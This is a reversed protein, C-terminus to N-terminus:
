RPHLIRASLSLDCPLECPDAARGPTTRKRNLEEYFATVNAKTGPNRGSLGAFYDKWKPGMAGPIEETAQEITKGAKHAARAADAYATM